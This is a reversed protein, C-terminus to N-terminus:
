FNATYEKDCGHRKEKGIELSLIVKHVHVLAGNSDQHQNSDDKKDVQNVHLSETLTQQQVAPVGYVTAYDPVNKTVVAGAGVMAHMGVIVGPMIVAGAGISCGDLLRAPNVLYACGAKPRVDDLLKAGPGIFVDCGIFADRCIFAGHQIRTRSGIHTGRGIFVCSGIVSSEGIEVDEEITTYAWVKFKNAAIQYELALPVSRPILSM